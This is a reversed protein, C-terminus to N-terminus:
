IQKKPFDQVITLTTKSDPLFKVDSSKGMVLNMNPASQEAMKKPFDQVITLTTKKQM